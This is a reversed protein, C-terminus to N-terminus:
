TDFHDLLGHICEDHHVHLHAEQKTRRLVIKLADNLADIQQGRHHAPSGALDNPDPVAASRSVAELPACFAPGKLGLEIAVETRM